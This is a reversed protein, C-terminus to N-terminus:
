RTAKLLHFHTTRGAGIGPYTWEAVVKPNAAVENFFWFLPIDPFSEFLNDGIARALRQREQPAVTNSLELYTKDLFENEFHHNNGKSYHAIRFWEESPRWSPLTPWLCCHIAKTAYLARIRPQDLSEITADIGVAKFYLAIAEVVQPIEAKALTVYSYLKVKLAGPPYGAAALLEKAKAPNYGYLANFRKPWDPNWGESIPLMLNVYAFDSGPYIADQMQKRDIAMNMAQRVRKDNWPVGAQFKPDGPIHYQGGMSIFLGEVALQARLIKMGRKLVESQLEKPLDVIHAEGSLLLALRTADEPALKIELEKFDPKEGRWHNEVSEYSIFQGLKRDVYRYSGTGAPKKDFGELGEKDWQAKSVMRLDGSRSAAYPMTVSPGKMRFVIQHDSVVKLEEVSKWVGTFTATADQRAFFSHSHVVDKATFEGYDFHFPVGKRLFFTWEKADPSSEWKDALRPVFESTKPDVELLTELFPDFQLLEPRAATWHRNTEAFGGSGFIVRKVRPEKAVAPAPTPASTAKPAAVAPASTAKAVPAEKQPAVAPAAPKAAAGCAVLALLGIAVLGFSLIRPKFLGTNQSRM